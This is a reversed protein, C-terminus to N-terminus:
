SAVFVEWFKGKWGENIAAHAGKNEQIFIRVRSDDAYRERLLDVSHDRSGDDVVVVELDGYTQSLYSDVATAVYKEHNYSPIVVTVLSNM